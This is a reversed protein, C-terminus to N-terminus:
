IILLQYTPVTAQSWAGWLPSCAFYRISNIDTWSTFCVGGFCLWQCQCVRTHLCHWIGAFPSFFCRELMSSIISVCVNNHWGSIVGPEQLLWRSIAWRSLARKKEKELKTIFLYDLLCFYIIPYEHRHRGSCMGKNMFVEATNHAGVSLIM